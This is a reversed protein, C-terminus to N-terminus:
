KKDLCNAIWRIANPTAQWIHFSTNMYYAAENADGVGYHGPPSAPFRKRGLLYLPFYKNYRIAKRLSKRSVDTDGYKRFDLLARGYIWWASHDDLYENYLSEADKDKGQELLFYLLKYRIGQNDGPNLRLMKQYIALVEEDVTALVGQSRSVSRLIGALEEMARMYPRTEHIAWFHGEHERFFDEGLSREGAQIAKRYGSIAQFVDTSAHEALIVLADVNDPDIKLAKRAVEVQKKPDNSEFATVILEQAKEKPTTATPVPMSNLLKALDVNELEDESLDLSQLKKVVDQMIKEMSKSNPPGSFDSADGVIHIATNNDPLDSMFVVNVKDKEPQNVAKKKTKKKAMDYLFHSFHLSEFSKQLSFDDLPFFLCSRVLFDIVLNPIM